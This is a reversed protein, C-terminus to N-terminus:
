TNSAAQLRQLDWPDHAAILTVEDGHDRVLERLRAQTGLRLDHNIEYTTQVWNLLPHTEPDPQLERHYYYADGCHLIWKEGTRVAIGTHGETHGGLPVLLIEASLGRAQQATFGFWRDNTEPTYPVWNPRHAWHAPRYRASPAQTLATEIETGLLHVQADPFDPLGGCHDGDLHTLFIHRVDAASFGLGEVQRIATEEAALVPQSTEVWAAGLVEDPDRIDLLGIGTEVLVLGDSDTELLLCHNVTHAPAPGEYTPEIMRVSGCNLHHVKM